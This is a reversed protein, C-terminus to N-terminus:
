IKKFLFNIIFTISKNGFENVPLIAKDSYRNKNQEETLFRSGIVYDNGNNIEILLNDIEDPDDQGDGGMFIILDGTAKIIGQRM